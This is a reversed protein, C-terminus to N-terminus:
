ICFGFVIIKKGAANNFTSYTNGGSTDVAALSGTYQTWGSRTPWQAPYKSSSLPYMIRSSDGTFIPYKETNEDLVYQSEIGVEDASLLWIRDDTTELTAAGGGSKRGSATVKTVRKIYSRLDSPFMSNIAGTNLRTRMASTSWLYFNETNDIELTDIAKSCIITIGAKGSGDALTDQSFAAIKVPVTLTTGDTKTLILNRTEGLTFTEQAKGSESIEKIQKWTANAFTIVSTWSAIYSSDGVVPAPTPTWGIFAYDTKTPTYSPTTGYALSQTKLVTTGDSDYYTITYYRVVSAFNAYVTRDETVAKLANSDKGGNPTTAWGGSFTYTYQATSERTPADILGATVPDACDEGVICAKQGYKVTGDHNKFTVYRIIGNGSVEGSDNGSDGWVVDNSNGGGSGGAIGTECAATLIAEMASQPKGEPKEGRLLNLWLQENRSQPVIDATEGKLLAELLQENRSAM